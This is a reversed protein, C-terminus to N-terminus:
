LWTPYQQSYLKVSTTYIEQVFVIDGQLRNLKRYLNHRKGPAYLGRVNLSILNTTTM